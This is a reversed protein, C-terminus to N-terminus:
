APARGGVSFLTCFLPRRWTRKQKWKQFCSVPAHAGNRRADKLAPGRERPPHLEWYTKQSLHEPGIYYLALPHRGGEWRGLRWHGAKASFLCGEGDCSLTRAGGPSEGSTRGRDKDPVKVRNGQEFCPHTDQWIPLTACTAVFAPNTNLEQGDYCAKEGNYIRFRVQLSAGRRRFGQGSEM